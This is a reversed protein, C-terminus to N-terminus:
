RAQKRELEEVKQIQQMVQPHRDSRSVRLEALEKRAVQLETQRATLTMSQGSFEFYGPAPMTYRATTASLEGSKLQVRLDATQAGGPATKGPSGMVSLAVVEAQPVTMTFGGDAITTAGDVRISGATIEFPAAQSRPLAVTQGASQAEPPFVWIVDSQVRKELGKAKLVIDLVQDWPVNNIRLTVTGKVGDSVVINRGSTDAILQLLTRVDIDQFTATMREGTYVSNEAAQAPVQAGGRPQIEVVYQGGAWYALHEIDGQASIVLQSGGSTRTADISTVPTGFAAVDYRRRLNDALDAGTFDVVIRNGQQKLNV